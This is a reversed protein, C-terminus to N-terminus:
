RFVNCLCIDVAARSVKRKLATSIIQQQLQSINEFLRTTLIGSARVTTAFVLFGNCQAHRKKLTNASFQSSMRDQRLEVYEGHVMVIM